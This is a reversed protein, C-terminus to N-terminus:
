HEARVVGLNEVYWQYTREIGARLDLTPRWGMAFLRSVDTRRLPTGDPKSLDQVIRGRFGVVESVLHALEAISIDVGTGVNIINEDDYQQMLFVSASAMDDVYLFERRPTGTGWIVVEDAGRIKGDHFKRILAPLVHSNELDFNDNPGYLNTPMLSIANFGYQKRYAQCLKIGAIKAVAYWENTPELTGTLLYEEKIPQPCIKPYICCSGLFVLKQVQYRHAAAIVHCQIRLNQDLFDVPYTNNAQIGGVKAAAMFVHSPRHADFYADVARADCLDLEERPATLIAHFGQQQLARVIASGVLGRHGAVFIKSNKQMVTM